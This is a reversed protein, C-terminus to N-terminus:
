RPQHNQIDMWGQRFFALSGQQHSLGVEFNTDIYNNWSGIYSILDGDRWSTSLFIFLVSNHFWKWYVCKKVDAMNKDWAASVSSPTHLNQKIKEFYAQKADFM